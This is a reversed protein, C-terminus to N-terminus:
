NFLELRLVDQDDMSSFPSSASCMKICCDSDKDKWKKSWITQWTNSNLLRDISIKSADINEFGGLDNVLKIFSENLGYGADFNSVTDYVNFQKYHEKNYDINLYVFSGLICCPLVIYNADIYIEKNKKVFCNIIDAQPWKKFENFDGKKIFKITAKEASELYHTVKGKRDLVKFPESGHRRSNKLVFSKFKYSRALSIAEDVQHQNHKFQIFKWTATGGANIFSQANKTVLDFNVGVRYLHNTDSLGDLAFSVNHKEPLANALKYWWESNQAGGNTDINIQIEPNTNKVYLCMDILDANLIPEGATGVIDIVTIQNLLLSNFIKKFNDLTWDNVHLQPNELGGHVNRACLPCSAQCRNTIEIQVRTLESFEFM